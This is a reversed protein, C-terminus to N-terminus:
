ETAGGARKAPTNEGSTIGIQMKTAFGTHDAGDLRVLGPVFHQALASRGNETASRGSSDM